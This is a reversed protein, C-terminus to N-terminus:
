AVSRWNEGIRILYIASDSVGFLGAIQVDSCTGFLTRIHRVDEESLKAWKIKSGSIRTGHVIKDADNEVGTAWRLHKPHICGGAGNGCSHASQYDPTPSAGNVLECMVRHAGDGRGNWWIWPYGNSMRSFPWILCERGTHSVHAMLWKRPEGKKTKEAGVLPDGHKKWRLYHKGCWGYAKHTGGCGEISCVKAVSDSGKFLPTSNLISNM